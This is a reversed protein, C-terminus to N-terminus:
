IPIRGTATARVNGGRPRSARPLLGIGIEYIAGQSGDPSRDKYGVDGAFSGATAVALRGNATGLWGDEEWRRRMARSDKFGTWEFEGCVEPDTVYRCLDDLDAEQVPRLIVDEMLCNHGSAREQARGGTGPWEAFLDPQRVVYQSFTPWRCM